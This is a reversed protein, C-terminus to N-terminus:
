QHHATVTIAGTYMGSVDTAEVEIAGFIRLTKGTTPISVDTLTAVLSAGTQQVARTSDNVYDLQLSRWALTHSGETAHVYASAAVTVSQGVMPSSSASLVFRAPQVAGGLSIVDVGGAIADGATTFSVTEAGTRLEKLLRGFSLPQTSTVQILNSTQASHSARVSGVALASLGVLLTPRWLNAM